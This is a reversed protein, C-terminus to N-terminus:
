TYSTMVLCEAFFLSEGYAIVVRIGPYASIQASIADIFAKYNATGNNAITYDGSSVLAACNRQPFLASLNGFLFPSYSKSVDPLDYIM